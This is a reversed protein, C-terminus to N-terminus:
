DPLSAALVDGPVHGPEMRLNYAPNIDLLMTKIRDLSIDKWLTGMLRTDDILITHSRVPHARIAALEFYLPVPVDGSASDPGSAHGDLWFVAREDLKQLIKPLETESGGQVLTVEPRNAFRSVARKHLQRSLEISYVRKFGADLAKQVTDGQYTGTEIFVRGHAYRMLTQHSIPMREAEQRAIAAPFVDYTSGSPCRIRCM